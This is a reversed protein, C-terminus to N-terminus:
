PYAIQADTRVADTFVLASNRRNKCIHGPFARQVMRGGLLSTIVVIKEAAAAASSVFTNARALLPRTTSHTPCNANAATNRIAPPDFNAPAGAITPSKL